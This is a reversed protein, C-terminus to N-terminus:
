AQCSLNQFESFSRKGDGNVDFESFISYKIYESAFLGNSAVASKIEARELYGNGNNDKQNFAYRIRKSKLSEHGGKWAEVRSYYEGLRNLSQLDASVSRPIHIPFLHKHLALVRHM